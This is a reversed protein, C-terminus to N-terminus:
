VGKKKAENWVQTVVIMVFLGACIWAAPAYIRSIGWLVLGLGGLQALFLVAMGFAKRAKTIM